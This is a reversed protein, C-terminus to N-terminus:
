VHMLADAVKAVQVMAAVDHVRVIHAGNLISATVAAATGWGRAEPPVDGLASKLYSKLSPGSLIPRGLSSLRRLNALLALSHEAKKAFGLGPDVIILREDIGARRALEIRSGLESVVEGAVDRYEAAAYMDRSRGRNHMLVVAADTARVTEAMAPDYQLASIDNVIDAGEEVARRATSARYTDISLPVDLKGRLGELVPALRTWEEQETVPRAGPRTSEAGVDLIDAGDAALQFGAAIAADPDLHAGGDAFSDPTVNIVGM